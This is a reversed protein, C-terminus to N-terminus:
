RVVVIVKVIIAYATQIAYLAKYETENDGKAISIDLSEALAHRREEIAKQKSQDDHALRFISQWERFLMNSRGTPHSSLASFLSLTLQKAPSVPSGDCFGAILNNPTLAKKELSLIGRIIRLLHGGALDEFATETFSGHENYSLFKIRWGDTLVGVAGHRFNEDLHELYNKIQLVAVAQTKQSDLKSKKKYEIILAGIRADIRGKKIHRKTDISQEKVPEFEVHLRSKIQGYLKLEFNTAITAENPAQTAIKRINKALVDLEKAFLPHGLVHERASEELSKSIKKKGETRKPITIPM